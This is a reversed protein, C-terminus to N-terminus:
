LACACTEGGFMMGALKEPTSDFARVLKESRAGKFNSSTRCYWWVLYTM